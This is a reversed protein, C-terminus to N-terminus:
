GDVAVGFGLSSEGTRVGARDFRREVLRWNGDRRATVVTSCRTGFEPNLVFPAATPPDGERDDLLGLLADVDLEDGDLLTELKAKSRRVKDAKSDLRENGVGYIGPPLHRPEDDRNSAYALEPGDVVLLNFGNYAEGDISRLYELPPLDGRLFDAVLHGRSRAEGDAMVRGAVNTVTAFRGRRSVALWTGGASRDRGGAIDPEDTWWGADLAPRAHFEDRNGAVILPYEPHVRFAIVVLCM